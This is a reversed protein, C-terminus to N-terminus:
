NWRPHSLILVLFFLGILLGPLALVLSLVIGLIPKDMVRLLLSGGVVAGVGALLGLWLLMNFSSVSSDALGEFFFYLVIAAIVADISWSLWFWIGAARSSARAAVPLPPPSDM